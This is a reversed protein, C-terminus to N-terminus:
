RAAPRESETGAPSIWRRLFFGYTGYLGWEELRRLNAMAAKPYYAMHSFTSYPSVV